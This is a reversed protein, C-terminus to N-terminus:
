WLARQASVIALAQHCLEITRLAIRSRQATAAARNGAMSGHAVASWTAFIAAVIMGFIVMATMIEIITFGRETARKVKRHPHFNM